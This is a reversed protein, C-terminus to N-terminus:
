GIRCGWWGSDTATAIVLGGRGGISRRPAISPRPSTRMSRSHRPRRRWPKPALATTDPTRRMLNTFNVLERDFVTDQRSLSKAYVAVADSWARQEAESLELYVVEEDEPAGAVAERQSDPMRAEARGLVYLFHHLNLWFGDTEFRFIPTATQAVLVSAVLLTKVM